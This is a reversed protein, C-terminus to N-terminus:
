NEKNINNKFKIVVVTINDGGGNNNAEKVLSECIVELNGDKNRDIIKKLEFDINWNDSRHGIPNIYDTLGDSCIIIMDEYFLNIKNIELDVDRVKFPWVSVDAGGIYNVLSSKEEIDDYEAWSAGSKLIRNGANQDTTLLSIGSDENWLYIRSDGVSSFYVENEIIVAASFTTGMIESSNVYNKNEIGIEEQTTEIIELNSLTVIDEFLKKVDKEGNIDKHRDEWLKKATDVAINSADYGTGYKCTSIGDAVVAFVKNNTEGKHELILFSDENIKSKDKTNGVKEIKGEGEHTAEAHLIEGHKLTYNERKKYRDILYNFMEVVEESNAYREESFMSSVKGIWSHLEYPVESNFLQIQNSMYRFASYDLSRQKGLILYLFLKGILFVDTSFDISQTDENIIEPAALEGKEYNNLYQNKQFFPRTQRLVLTDIDDNKIWFDSLDFSGLIYNNKYIQVIIKGVKKILEEIINFDIKRDRLWHELDIEGEDVFYLITQGDKEMIKIPQQIGEGKLTILEERKINSKVVSCKLIDNTWREEHEYTNKDNYNNKNNLVIARGCNECFEEDMSLENCHPCIVGNEM